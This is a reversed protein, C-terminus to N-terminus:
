ILTSSGVRIYIRNYTHTNLVNPSGKLLPLTTKHCTFTSLKKTINITQKIFVGRRVVSSGKRTHFSSCPLLNAASDTEKGSSRKRVAVWHLHLAFGWLRAEHRGSHFLIRYPTSFLLTQCQNKPFFIRHTGKEEKRPSAVRRSCAQTFMRAAPYAGVLCLLPSDQPIRSALELGLLRQEGHLAMLAKHVALKVQEM